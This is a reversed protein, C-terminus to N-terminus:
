RSHCCSTCVWCSFLSVVEMSDKDASSNIALTTKIIPAVRVIRRRAEIKKNNRADFGIVLESREAFPALPKAPVVSKRFHGVPFVILQSFAVSTEFASLASPLIPFQDHSGIFKSPLKLGVVVNDATSTRGVRALQVPFLLQVTEIGDVSDHVGPLGGVIPVEPGQPPLSM